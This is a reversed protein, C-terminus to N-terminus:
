VQMQQTFESNRLGSGRDMSAPQRFVATAAASHMRTQSNGVKGQLSM